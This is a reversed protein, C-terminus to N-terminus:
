KLFGAKQMEEKLAQRTADTLPVLPLRVESSCLGLLEMAGKVGAPNGDCYLHPHIELMQHHLQQALKWNQHLAAKVMGAFPGPLANGIVSIVGKAGISMLPLATPDDGSLLTFHAPKHKAILAGEHMDGSAEKVAVFRDSSNALRLITDADVHSCTRGPVNYIIIPRPAVEALKMYHQYIGEQTPKNYSPSSSMIFDIGEFQFQQVKRILRATNNDGFLGAVIPKRGANVQITFRVVSECEEPSLTIAEGTTGLCVLFDVGGEIVHEIVRELAEFDIKDDKFPTVLAVGLGNLPPLSM